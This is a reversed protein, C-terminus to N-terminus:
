KIRSSCIEKNIFIILMIGRKESELQQGVELFNLECMNPKLAEEAEEKPAVLVVGAAGKDLDKSLKVCNGLLDAVHARSVVIDEPGLVIYAGQSKFLM